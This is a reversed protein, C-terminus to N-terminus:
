RRRRKMLWYVLVCTFAVGVGATVNEFEPLAQLEVKFAAGGYSTDQVVIHSDTPSYSVPNYTQSDYVVVRWTGPANTPNFTYQCTTNVASGKMDQQSVKAGSADWFIIRYNTNNALGGQKMYATSTTFDDCAVNRAANSYSNLTKPAAEVPSAWLLSILVLLVFLHKV